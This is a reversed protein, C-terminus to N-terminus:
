YFYRKPVEKRRYTSHCNKCRFLNELRTMKCRCEIGKKLCMPCIPVNYPVKRRM